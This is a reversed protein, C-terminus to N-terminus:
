GSDYWFIKHYYSVRLLSDAVPQGSLFIMYVYNKLRAAMFLVLSSFIHYNVSIFNFFSSHFFEMFSVPFFAQADLLFEGGREPCLVCLLIVAGACFGTTIMSVALFADGNVSGMLFM